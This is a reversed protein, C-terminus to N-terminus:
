TCCEAGTCCGDSLARARIARARSYRKARPASARERAIDARNADPHRLLRMAESRRRRNEVEVAAVLARDANSPPELSESLSRMHKGAERMEHQTPLSLMRCLADAPGECAALQEAVERLRIAARDVAEQGLTPRSGRPQLLQQTFRAHTYLCQWAESQLQRHASAARPSWRWLFSVCIVPLALPGVAGLM